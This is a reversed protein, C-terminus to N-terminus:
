PSIPSLRLRTFFTSSAAGAVMRAAFLWLLTLAFAMMAYGTALVILTLIIPRRGFKDGWIEWFQRAFFQMLARALRPLRLSHHM